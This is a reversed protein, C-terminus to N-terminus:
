NPRIWREWEPDNLEGRATSNVLEYRGYDRKDVFIFIVGGQVSFYKWIVYPKNEATYPFREIEDPIGYMLLIRGRDSKWGKDVETFREDATRMLALYKDRFENEPTGVTEDRKKWFDILFNRKGAVDLTKYIKKEESRAIYSAGSFEEDLAEVSLNSYIRKYAAELREQQLAKATSDSMALDGERYIFFKKKRSAIKNNFLDRAIVELYYTGSRFSIINMGSVEVASEGPKVRVKEPFARVVQGDGDLVQYKMSYRTTDPENEKKLNYVEAYFMLMPLGTGYFRESNPIVMYGNKYFRNQSKAKEIKSALQIDSLAISDKSLETISLQNEYRRSFGSNADLVEVKLLYEGPKLAFYGVGYLKQGPGILSLSDIVDVNKWPTKALLSDNQWVEATFTFEAGFKGEVPVYKLHNRFISYYLELLVYDNQSRFFAYDYNFIFKDKTLPLTQESQALITFPLTLFILFVFVVLITKKYSM